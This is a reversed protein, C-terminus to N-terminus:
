REGCGRHQWKGFFMPRASQLAPGPMSCYFLRFLRGHFSSKFANFASNLLALQDDDVPWEDRRL